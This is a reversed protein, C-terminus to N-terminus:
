GYPACEAVVFAIWDKVKGYLPMHEREERRSPSAIRAMDRCEAARSLYETTKQM